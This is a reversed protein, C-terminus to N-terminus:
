TTASPLQADAPTPDIDAETTAQPQAETPSQGPPNLGGNAAAQSAHAALSAAQQASDANNRLTATLQEMSSATEQLSSAAEETRVSLDNNGQAIESSATRMGGVQESVDDVLSRLNFGAQNVARLIMGIEDVRNMPVTQGPQGAAVSLAQAQVRELPRSIQSELWASVLGAGTVIAAAFGGLAGAGLGAAAAAAVSVGALAGIGWRIRWRVPMTSLASTWGWLGTRVVLGERFALAAKVQANDLLDRVAALFDEGFGRQDDLDLFGEGCLAGAQAGVM